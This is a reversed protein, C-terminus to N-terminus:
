RKMRWRTRRLRTLSKKSFLRFWFGDPDPDPDTDPNFDQFGIGIGVGVELAEIAAEEL